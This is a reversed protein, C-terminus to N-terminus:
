SLLKPSQPERPAYRTARRYEGPTTGTWRRFARHFASTESFGLQAALARMSKNTALLDECAIRCRAADILDTLTTGERRLKRRLAGVDLRTHRAIEAIDINEWHRESRLLAIVTQSTARAQDRQAVLQEAVGESTRRLLDDPHPQPTDLCALSFSLANVDSGFRVPCGFVQQYREAYSPAQHRLQVELPLAHRASFRQAVRAIMAFLLEILSRGVADTELEPKCLLYARNEGEHLTWETDDLLLSSYRALAVFAERLTRQALMVQSLTQWMTIPANVGISLGLSPDATLAVADHLLQEVEGLSLTESSDLLRKRDIPVQALLAYPDHGQRQVESLVGRAIIVSMSM